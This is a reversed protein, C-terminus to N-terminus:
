KKEEEPPFKAAAAEPSMQSREGLDLGFLLRGLADVPIAPKPKAHEIETKDQFTGHSKSATDIKGAREPVQYAATGSHEHPKNEHPKNDGM